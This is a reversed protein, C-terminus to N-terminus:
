LVCPGSSSRRSEEAAIHPGARAQCCRKEGSNLRVSFVIGGVAAMPFMTGSYASATATEPFMPSARLGATRGIVLMTRHFPLHYEPLGPTACAGDSM